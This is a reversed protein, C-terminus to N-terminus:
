MNFNGLDVLHYTGDFIISLNWSTTTEKSDVINFNPSYKEFNRETLESKESPIDVIWNVTKLLFAMFVIFSESSVM